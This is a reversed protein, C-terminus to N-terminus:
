DDGYLKLVESVIHSRQVDKRSFEVSGISNGDSSKLRGLFDLLGNDSNFKKDHQKLDGTIVMKSNEGLRTLMMKMQNITSNQAEDFIIWTNTYTRGRQFALPAIEIKKEEVMRTTDKPSYYMHLVDFLPIVWPEMKENLTGPLFGFKEDDVGTAPRTLLIKDVEGEKFAKIAALMALMTKGTGAPGTAFVIHKNEDTLLSIYEEQNLTKPILEVTRKLKETYQNFSITNSPTEVSRINAKIKRERRSM